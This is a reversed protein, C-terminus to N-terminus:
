LRFHGRRVQAGRRVAEFSHSSLDAHPSRRKKPSLKWVSKGHCAACVRRGPAASRPASLTRRTDGGVRVTNWHQKNMYYGPIVDNWRARLADGEEPPLKLTIMVVRGEEDQCLVAFLKDGVYFRQWRWAPQFNTTVGPLSLLFEEAWPYTM